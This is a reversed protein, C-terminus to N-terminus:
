VGFDSGEEESFEGGEKGARAAHEGGFARM